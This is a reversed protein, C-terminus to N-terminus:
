YTTNVTITVVDPTARPEWYALAASDVAGVGVPSFLLGNSGYAPESRREGVRTMLLVSASAAIEAPTDQVNVVAAGDSGFRLPLAFHGGRDAM